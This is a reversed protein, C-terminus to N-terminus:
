ILRARRFCRCAWWLLVADVVSLAVLAIGLVGYPDRDRLWVELCWQPNVEKLVVLVVLVVIPAGILILSTLQLTEQVTAARLSLPITTGM